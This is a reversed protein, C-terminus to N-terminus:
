DDEAYRRDHRRRLWSGIPLMVLWGIEWAWPGVYALPITLLATVPEPLVSIKLADADEGSVNDSLLRRDKAAYRFGLFGAFGVGALAMSQMFRTAPSDFFEAIEMSYAYLVLFVLQAICFAVHNGNTRVLNGLLKNNQLWYIVILIVGILSMVISGGAENLFALLAGATWELDEEASPMPLPALVRFLMLAFMVDMLTELRTLQRAQRELEAPELSNQETM